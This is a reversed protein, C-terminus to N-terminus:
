PPLPVDPCKLLYYDADDALAEFGAQLHSDREFTCGNAASFATLAAEDVPGAFLAGIGPKPCCGIWTEAYEETILIVPHGMFALPAEVFRYSVYDRRAAPEAAIAAHAILGRIAQGSDIMRTGSYPNTSLAAYLLREAPSDGLVAPNSGIADIDDDWDQPLLVTCNDLAAFAAASGRLSFRELVQGTGTRLTAVRGAALAARLAQPAPRNYVVVVVASDGRMTANMRWVARDDLVLQYQGSSGEQPAQWGDHEVLIVLDGTAHQRWVLAGQPTATAAECFHEGPNRATRDIQTVWDGATHLTEGAKPAEPAALAFALLATVRM